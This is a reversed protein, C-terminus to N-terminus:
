FDGTVAPAGVDAQETDAKTPRWKDRLTTAGGLMLVLVVATVQFLLLVRSTVARCYVQGVFAPQVGQQCMWMVTDSGYRRRRAAARVLALQGRSRKRVDEWVPPQGGPQAGNGEATGVRQLFLVCPEVLCTM